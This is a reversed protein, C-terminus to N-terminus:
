RCAGSFAQKKRVGCLATLLLGVGMLLWTSPEPVLSNAQVSSNGPSITGGDNVIDGGLTGNGAITGQQVDITGGALVVDNSVM